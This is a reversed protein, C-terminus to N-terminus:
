TLFRSSSAARRCMGHVAAFGSSPEVDLTAGTPLAMYTTKAAGDAWFSANVGYPVLGPAPQRQDGSLVCGTGALSAPITDPTGGGSTIIRRIRGNGYDAFYLEKASDTGFASINYPTDVLEDNIFGGQGDPQLVWIRGSSFDAFIYRGQTADACARYVLRRHDVTGHTRTSTGTESAQPRCGCQKSSHHGRPLAMRLRRRASSKWEEWAGQGVDGGSSAPRRRRGVGRNRLRQRIDTLCRITGSGCQSERCLSTRRITFRAPFAGPVQHPADALLRTSQARYDQPRASGGGLGYVPLLPASPSTVGNHNTLAQDSCCTKRIIVPPTVNDTEGSFRRTLRRRIARTCISKGPRPSTRIFAMGLM